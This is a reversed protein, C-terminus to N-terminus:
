TKPLIFYLVLVLAILIFKHFALLWVALAICLVFASVKTFITLLKILSELATLARERLTDMFTIGDVPQTYPRSRPNYKM